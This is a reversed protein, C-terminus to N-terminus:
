HEGSSGDPEAWEHTVLVTSCATCRLAHHGTGDANQLISLKGESYCRPCIEHPLEEHRFEPKLEYALNGNGIDALRYRGVKTSWDDQQKLREELQILQAKLEHVENRALLRAENAEFLADYAKLLHEQLELKAANVAAQTHSGTLGQVIERAAKLSSIGAAIEAIM